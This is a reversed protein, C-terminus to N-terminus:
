GTTRAVLERWEAASPRMGLREYHLRGAHPPCTFDYTPAVRFCEHGVAMFPALVARQSHYATLMAHRRRLQAADLRCRVGPQGRSIFEGACLAGAEGHYLAMELLPARSDARARARACAVAITDHDPHGGEYAHTIIADPRGHAILRALERILEDLAFVTEQDELELALRRAGVEALAQEAERARARVYVDRDITGEPWWRPDRPAGATVHIVVVECPAGLALSAGISEDDPHAAVIWLRM